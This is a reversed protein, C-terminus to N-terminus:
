YTIELDKCLVPPEEEHESCTEPENCCQSVNLNVNSKNLDMKNSVEGIIGLEEGVTNVIEKITPREKVEVDVPNVVIDLALTLMFGAENTCAGDEDNLRTYTRGAHRFKEGMRIESLKTEKM